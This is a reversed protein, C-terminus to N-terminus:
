TNPPVRYKRVDRLPEGRAPLVAFGLDISHELRQM